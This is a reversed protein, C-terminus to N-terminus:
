RGPFCVPCAFTEERSFMCTYRILCVYHFLCTIFRTSDVNHALPHDPPASTSPLSEIGPRGVLKSLLIFPLTRNHKCYTRTSTTQFKDNRKEKERKRPSPEVYFHHHQRGKFDMWEDLRKCYQLIKCRDHGSSQVSCSQWFPDYSIHSIRFLWFTYFQVVNKSM